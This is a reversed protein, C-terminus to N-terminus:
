NMNVVNIEIIGIIFIQETITRMSSKKTNMSMIIGDLIFAILRVTHIGMITMMMDTGIRTDCRTMDIRIYM